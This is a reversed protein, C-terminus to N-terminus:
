SSGSRLEWGLHCREPGVVVEITLNAILVCQLSAILFIVRIKTINIIRKLTQQTLVTQNRYSVINEELWQPLLILTGYYTM